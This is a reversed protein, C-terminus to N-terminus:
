TRILSLTLQIILAHTREFELELNTIKKLILPAKTVSLVQSKSKIPHLPTNM